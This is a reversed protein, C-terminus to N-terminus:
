GCNDGWTSYVRLGHHAAFEDVADRVGFNAGGNTVFGTFYDDGFFLGGMRLQTGRVCVYM